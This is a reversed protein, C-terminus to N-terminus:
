DIDPPCEDIIGMMWAIASSIEAGADRRVGKRLSREAQCEGEKSSIM